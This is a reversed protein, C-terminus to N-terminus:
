ICHLPCAPLTRCLEIHSNVQVQEVLETKSHVIVIVHTVTDKHFPCRERVYEAVPVRGRPRVHALDVTIPNLDADVPVPFQRFVKPNIQAPVECIGPVFVYIDIFRVIRIYPLCPCSLREIGHVAIYGVTQEFTVLLYFATRVLAKEAARDHRSVYLVPIHVTVATDRFFVLYHERRHAIHRADLVPKAYAKGPFPKIETHKEVTRGLALDHEVTRCDIREAGIVGIVM